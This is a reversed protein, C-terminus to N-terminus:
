HVNAYSCYVRCDGKYPRLVTKCANCEYFWQRADTPMTEVKAHGCSPCTLTSGLVKAERTAMACIGSSNFFSGSYAAIWRRQLRLWARWQEGSTLVFMALLADPLLHRGIRCRWPELSAVLGEDTNGSCPSCLACRTKKGFLRVPPWSFHSHQLALYFWPRFDIARASGVDGYVNGVM